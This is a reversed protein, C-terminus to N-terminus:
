FLIKTYAKYSLYTYAKFPLYCPCYCSPYYDLLGKRRRKRRVVIIVPVPKVVGPADIVPVPKVVGPADQESVPADEELVPTQGEEEKVVEPTQGESELTGLLQNVRRMIKGRGYHLDRIDESKTGEMEMVITNAKQKM